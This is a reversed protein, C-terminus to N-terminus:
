CELVRVHGASGYALLRADRTVLTASLRRATAILLRDAPDAHLPGPLFSSEIAAEATLSALGIGPLALLASFWAAPTPQFVLRSRRSAALLGIEWASVVSVLVEGRQTARRIAALGRAALPDGNGLWIAACTDLLLPM